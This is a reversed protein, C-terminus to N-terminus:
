HIRTAEIWAMYFVRGLLVLGYVVVVATLVKGWHDIRNLTTATWTQQRVINGDSDRLHLMDDEHSSVWKRTGALLLVIM